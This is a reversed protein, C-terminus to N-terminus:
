YCLAHKVCVDSNVHKMLAWASLSSGVGSRVQTIIAISCCSPAFRCLGKGAWARDNFWWGWFVAVFKIM